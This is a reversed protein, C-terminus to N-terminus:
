VSALVVKPQWEAGRREAVAVAEGDPGILVARTAEGPAPIRMGRRILALDAAAISVAPLSLAGLPSRPQVRGARIEDLTSANEVSCAGSRIRRLASLHAASGALRGLDRALARIYTGAGCVIRARLEVPTIELVEWSDVRVAVPGLSPEVGRRAAAYAREGAVHKASYAPPVQLLRGTLAPLASRVRAPTPLHDRRRARGTHDDTDTECGFRIAAEYVKPDGAVYSLLRTASGVMLVLLGTAFPDLTGAHGVRPTSLARRVAAVVDHSTCNPPKDVLLLGESRPPHALM